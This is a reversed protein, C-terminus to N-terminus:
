EVLLGEDVLLQMNKRPRQNIRQEHRTAWRCNGPEYNGDNNIRDITYEDGPIPGMDQIFNSFSALWRECVRIGRGGWDKYQPYKPNYCRQKMGIWANYEPGKDKAYGHKTNRELDLEHKLCGCSKTNGIRVRRNEVVVYNGCSCRWLGCRKHYKDIEIDPNVCTLRNHTDGYKSYERAKM